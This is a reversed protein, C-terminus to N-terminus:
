AVAKRMCRWSSGRSIHWVTGYHVGYEQALSKITRGASLLKIIEAVQSEKLKSTGVKSGTALTGHVVRHSNNEKSTCWRLNSSRNNKPNGDLHAAECGDPRPGVFSELVMTHVFVTVGRGNARLSMALYDGRGKPVVVRHSSARIRAHSGRVAWSRVRGLNSVEYRDDRPWVRWEEVISMQEPM